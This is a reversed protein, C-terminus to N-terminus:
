TGTLEKIEEENSLEVGSRRITAEWKKLTLEKVPCEADDSIGSKQDNHYAM